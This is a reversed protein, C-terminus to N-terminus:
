LEGVPAQCKAFVIENKAKHPVSRVYSNRPLSNNGCPVPVLTGTRPQSSFEDGLLLTRLESIGRAIRSKVTGLPIDLVRAIEPYSWGQLYFLAVPAKYTETVQRLAALVGASDITDAIAPLEAPLEEFFSEPQDPVFRSQRRHRLLFARHLTRFLWFKAKSRERLQHGKLGFIHFAEQTLDLADAECRTLSLAFRFLSQYNEEVVETFIDKPEM